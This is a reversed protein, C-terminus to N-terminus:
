SLYAKNQEQSRTINCFKMNFNLHFQIIIDHRKIPKAKM